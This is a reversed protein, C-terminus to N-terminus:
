ERDDDEDGDDLNWTKGCVNCFYAQPEVEEVMHGSESCGPCMVEMGKRKPGERRPM